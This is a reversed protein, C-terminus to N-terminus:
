DGAFKYTFMEQYYEGADVYQWDGSGFMDCQLKANDSIRVVYGGDEKIKDPNKDIIESWSDMDEKVLDAFSIKKTLSIKTGNVEVSTFSPNWQGKVAEGVWETYSDDSTNFTVSFGFYDWLDDISDDANQKFVLKGDEVVLARAWDDEGGAYGDGSLFTYTRDGNSAFLCYNEGNNYNFNVKVELGVTTMTEALTLELEEMRWSVPYGNSQAYSKGTLTKAYYNTGDTASVWIQATSTPQIAVYIPGAVASRSVTYTNDGAKLTMSTISSTIDSSGAENKLNIALIALQNTLTGTPLTGANWAGSYTALDLNSALTALTGNQSNLAAYNISGDSNAMAAPYIYTVNQTKNPDTLEFTFTANKGDNTIDGATLAASVAKVTTGSTNKYIVAMTEGAAFTKVGKDGEISLARTTAGGDLGVTTTLTVVNSKNEPEVTFDDENSCGTMVAGVLALAAMSLFKKTKM